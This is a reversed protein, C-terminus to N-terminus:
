NTASFCAGLEIAIYIHHFHFFLVHFHFNILLRNSACAYFQPQSSREGNDMVLNSFFGVPSSSHRALMDMSGNNQRDAADGAGLHYQHRRHGDDHGHGLSIDGGRYRLGAAAREGALGGGHQHQGGSSSSSSPEGGGGGGAPLFRRM